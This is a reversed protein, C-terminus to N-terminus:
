LAKYHQIQWIFLVVPSNDENCNSFLLAPSARKVSQCFSAIDFWGFFSLFLFSTQEPVLVCDPLFLLFLQDKMKCDSMNRMSRKEGRLVVGKFVYIAATVNGVM